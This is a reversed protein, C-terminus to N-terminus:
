SRTPSAANQKRWAEDFQRIVQLREEHELARTTHILTCGDLMLDAFDDKELKPRLIRFEQTGAELDIVRLLSYGPVRAREVIWPNIPAESM